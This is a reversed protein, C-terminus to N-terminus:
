CCVGFENPLEVEVDNSAERDEDPVGEHTGESDVLSEASSIKIRM